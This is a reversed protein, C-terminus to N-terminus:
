NMFTPAAAVTPVFCVSAPVIHASTLSSTLQHASVMEMKQRKYVPLLDLLSVRSNKLVVFEM